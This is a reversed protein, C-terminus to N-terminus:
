STWVPSRIGLEKLYEKKEAEELQAIEEEIRASTVVMEAGEETVVSQLEKVLPNNEGNSPLDEEAVNAAYIVPKDTLM